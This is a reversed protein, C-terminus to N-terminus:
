LKVCVWQAGRVKGIHIETWKLVDNNDSVLRAIVAPESVRELMRHCACESNNHKEHSDAHTLHHKYVTATPSLISAINIHCSNDHASCALLMSSLLNTIYCQTIITATANTKSLPFSLSPSLSLPLSSLSNKFM